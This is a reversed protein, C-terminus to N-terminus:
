YYSESVDELTPLFSYFFLSTFFFDGKKNKKNRIVKRRGLGDTFKLSIKHRSLGGTFTSKKSFYYKKIKHGNKKV